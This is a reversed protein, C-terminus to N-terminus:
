LTPEQQQLCVEIVDAFREVLRRAAVPTVPWRCRFRARGSDDLAVSVGLKDLDEIAQRGQARAAPTLETPERAAAPVDLWLGFKLLAKTRSM